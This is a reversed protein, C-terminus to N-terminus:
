EGEKTVPKLPVPELTGPDIILFGEALASAEAVLVGERIEGIPSLGKDMVVFGDLASSDREGNRYVVIRVKGESPTHKVDLDVGLSPVLFRETTQVPKDGAALAYAPTGYAPIRVRDRLREFIEEVREAIAAKLAALREERALQAELKCAAETLPEYLAASEVLYECRPDAKSFVPSGVLASFGVPLEAGFNVHRFLALADKLVKGDLSGMVYSKGILREHATRANWCQLVRQGVLPIGTAMEGDTAPFSYPSFPVVLWIDEMWHDLVAVYPFTDEGAILDPSLVRIQGPHVDDDHPDAAEGLRRADVTFGVPADSVAAIAEEASRESLWADLLAADADSDTLIRSYLSTKM